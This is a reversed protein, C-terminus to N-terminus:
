ASRREYRVAATLVLVFGMCIVVMDQNQRATDQMRREGGTNPGLLADPIAPPVTGEPTAEIPAGPNLLGYCEQPLLAAQVYVGNVITEDICDLPAIEQVLYGSDFALAGRPAAIAVIAALGLATGLQRLSTM